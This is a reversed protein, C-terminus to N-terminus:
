VERGNAAFAAYSGLAFGPKLPIGDLTVKLDSRPFSYRHVDGAMVDGKRGVADDVAPWDVPRTPPAATTSSSPVAKHESSGGSNCASTVLAAAALVQALRIRRIELMPTEMANWPSSVATEFFSTPIVRVGIFRLMNARGLSWRM